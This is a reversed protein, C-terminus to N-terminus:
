SQNPHDENKMKILLKFIIYSILIIILNSLHITPLLSHNLIVKMIVWRIPSQINCITSHLRIARRKYENANFGFVLLGISM